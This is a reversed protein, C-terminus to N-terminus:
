RSGTSTSPSDSAAVAKAPVPAKVATKPRLTGLKDVIQADRLRLRTVGMSKQTSRNRVMIIFESKEAFQDSMCRAGFRYSTGDSPVDPQLWLRGVGRDGDVLHIGVRIDVEKVQPTVDLRYSSIDIRPYKFRKLEVTIPPPEKALCACCSWGVGVMALSLLIRRMM